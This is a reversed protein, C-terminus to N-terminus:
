GASMAQRKGPLADSGKASLKRAPHLHARRTVQASDEAGNGLELGLDGIEACGAFAEWKRKVTIRHGRKRGRECKWVGVCGCMHVGKQVSVFM